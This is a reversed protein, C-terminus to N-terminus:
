EITRRTVRTQLRYYDYMAGDGVKALPFQWQYFELTMRIVRNNQNNTLVNGAYDEARFVLQNTIYNAVPRVEAGSVRMLSTSGADLYYRVFQNRNTTPYIQLANGIQPADNTIPAFADYSGNGVVLMKGMRIEDRIQNLAARGESTATVKTEAIRYMKLGLVQTTVLAGSLLLFIAMVVLMEPLTFGQSLRPASASRAPRNRLATKM